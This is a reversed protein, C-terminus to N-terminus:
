PTTRLLPSYRSRREGYRYRDPHVLLLDAALAQWWLPLPLSLSLSVSLCIPQRGDSLSLPVSRSDAMLSSTPSPSLPLDTIQWYSLGSRNDARLSPSPSLSPATISWHSLCIPQRGDSLSPSPLLHLDTIHWYFFGSRNDAMLSPSLPVSRHSGDSLSLYLSLSASRNDALQM